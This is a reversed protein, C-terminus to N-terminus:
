AVEMARRLDEAYPYDVEFFGLRGPCPFFPLPKTRQTDIRWNCQDMAAWQSNSDYGYGSFVILGVIGGTELNEPVSFGLHLLHIVDEREIRKGVHLLIPKNMYRKSLPWTRNEVDKGAHLIAWAWPQRISIAPLIM